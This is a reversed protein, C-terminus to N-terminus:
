ETGTIEDLTGRLSEVVRICHKVAAPGHRVALVRVAEVLKIATDADAVANSDAAMGKKLHELVADSPRAESGGTPPSSLTRSVDDSAKLAAAVADFLLRHTQREALAQRLLEAGIDAGAAVLKRDDDTFVPKDFLELVVHIGAGVRLPAALISKRGREFPMLEVAGAAAPDFENMVCPDQLSVVSAALSKNFPVAPAPLSKGDIGYAAATDVGDAGINRVLLAGDKAGTARLLFRFLAHIAEPLPVPDNLAAASRVLPLVKEVSGRFAALSINLERQRKAPRIKDLQRRIAALFTEKNLDQNKDLYDRVGMRLAELPTAQSAFGTVLIAVVDPHFEVLDELLQLGDSGSGLNWDLVALDIPHENAVLLAAESDAAAYVKVNLGGTTLWERFTRRVGDEDDVILVSESM